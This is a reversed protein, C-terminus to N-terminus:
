LHEDTSQIVNVTVRTQDTTKWVEPFDQNNSCRYDIELLNLLFNFSWAGFADNKRVFLSPRYVKRVSQNSM